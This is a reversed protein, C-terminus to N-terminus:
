ITCNKATFESTWSFPMIKWINWLTYRVTRLIENNHPFFDCHSIQTVILKVKGHIPYICQVYTKRGDIFKRHFTPIKLKILNRKCCRHKLSVLNYYTLYVESLLKLCSNLKEPVFRSSFCNLHLPWGSCWVLAFVGNFISLYFLIEM